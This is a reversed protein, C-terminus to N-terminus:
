SWMPTTTHWDCRSCTRTEIGAELCTPEKTVSWEGLDHGLVPIATGRVILKGCDRCYTDGSYGEQTCTAPVADRIETNYHTCRGDNLSM